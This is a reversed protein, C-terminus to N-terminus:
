WLTDQAETPIAADWIAQQAANLADHAIRYAARHAEGAEPNKRYDVHDSAVECYRRYAERYAEILRPQLGPELLAAVQPWTIRTIQEVDGPIDPDANIRHLIGKSSADCRVGGGAFGMMEPALTRAERHVTLAYALLKNAPVCRRAITIRDADTTAQPVPGSSVV